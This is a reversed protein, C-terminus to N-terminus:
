GAEQMVKKSERREQGEDELQLARRMFNGDEGRLVHGYWGLDNAVALLDM